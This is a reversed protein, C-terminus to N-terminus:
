ESGRGDLIRGRGDLTVNGSFIAICVRTNGIGSGNIIDNALTYHGSQDIRTCGTIPTANAPLALLILLITLLLSKIINKLSKPANANLSDAERICANMKRGGKRQLAQM